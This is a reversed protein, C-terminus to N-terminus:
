KFTIEYKDLEERVNRLADNGRRLVESRLRTAKEPTWWDALDVYKKYEDPLQDYLKNLGENHENNGRELIKLFEKFLNTVHREIVFDLAEAPNISISVRPNPAACSNAPQNHPIIQGASIPQTSSSPFAQNSM